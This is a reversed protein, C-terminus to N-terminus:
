RLSSPQPQAIAGGRIPNGRGILLGVIRNRQRPVQHRRHRPRILKVAKRIITSVQPNPRSSRIRANRISPTIPHRLRIIRIGKTRKPHRPSCSTRNIQHSTHVISNQNIIGVLSSSPSQIQPPQHRTLRGEGGHSIEQIWRSWRAKGVLRPVVHGNVRPLKISM